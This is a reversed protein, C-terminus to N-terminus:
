KLKIEKKLENEPKLVAERADAINFTCAHHYKKAGQQLAIKM